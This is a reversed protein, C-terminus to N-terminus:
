SLYPGARVQPIKRSTNENKAVSYLLRIQSRQIGINKINVETTKDAAFTNTGGSYLEPDKAIKTRGPILYTSNVDKTGQLERVKLTYGTEHDQIPLHDANGAKGLFAVDYGTYRKQSLLENIVAIDSDSYYSIKLSGDRLWLIRTNKVGVSELQRKIIALARRAETDTIQHDSFELLIEQNPIITQKHMVFLLAFTSLLVNFYWKKIM